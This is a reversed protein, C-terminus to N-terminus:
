LTETDEWFFPSIRRAAAGLGKGILRGGFVQFATWGVLKSGAGLRESNSCRYDGITWGWQAVHDLGLLDSLTNSSGNLFWYQTDFPNRFYNVPGDPYLGLPDALNTPNNGVYAYQNIGGNLGIPDESIFRGLNPDYWRARSYQLGFLSLYERGTFLYRLADQDYIGGPVNGFSDYSIRGTLDGNADALGTTSGLHDQIFYQTGAYNYNFNDDSHIRSSMNETVRRGLADYTNTVMDLSENMMFTLRNEYDWDYAGSGYGPGYMSGLVGNAGYEYTVSGASTLRNYPQYGYTASRHSSTRNGVADYAYFENGYQSDTASTLRDVTDYGFTRTWDPEVIQSIQNAANYSYQRDFLTSTPDVDKLRITNTNCIVLVTEDVYKDTRFDTIIM